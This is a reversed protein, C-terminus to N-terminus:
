INEEKDDNTLEVLTSNSLDIRDCAKNIVSTDVQNIVEISSFLDLHNFLDRIYTVGIDNISNFMRVAQGYYRRKLQTILAEDILEKKMKELQKTIMTRFKTIDNCENYFMLIAYDKSLDIDYGFYDTIIENDLWDQYEANMGTFYAELLFRLGWETLVRESSSEIIIPLKFALCAKNTNVDMNFKGSLTVCANPEQYQFRKIPGFTSYEKTSQNDKIVSMLIQPDQASVVVLYMNAPHYNRRYCEMLDTRTISTVSEVSGGIDYKLPFDHYIASFTENFLRIDPMQKYMLLEQIIIGKEKEISEDTINLTQVFNLLLNLPETIDEKSTNFYYVTENYSTFANVNAGMASFAAMVDKQPDEFLKHELFHATGCPVEYVGESTLQRYDLSGYPVAILANSSVYDKKYWIVVHLGNPLQEEYLTEKFKQNYIKQM